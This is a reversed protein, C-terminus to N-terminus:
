TELKKWSYGGCPIAYRKNPTAPRFGGNDGGGPSLGGNM